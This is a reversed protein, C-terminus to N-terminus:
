IGCLAACTTPRKGEDDSFIVFSNLTRRNERLLVAIQGGDPSRILGPECLHATQHRAIVEPQSWTLGGDESLIKHVEFVPPQRRRGGARLFRGDDHFLALYNGGQLRAVSGLCGCSWRGVCGSTVSLSPM